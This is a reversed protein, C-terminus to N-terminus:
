LFWFIGKCELTFWPTVNLPHPDIDFSPFTDAFSWCEPSITSCWVSQLLDYSVILLAFGILRSISIAIGSKNWGFRSHAPELTLLYVKLYLLYCVWVCMHLWTNKSRGKVGTQTLNRNLHYHLDEIKWHYILLEKEDHGLLCRGLPHQLIHYHSIEQGKHWAQYDHHRSSWIYFLM